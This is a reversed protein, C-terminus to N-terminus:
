QLSLTVTCETATDAQTSIDVRIWSGQVPDSLGSIDINDVYNSTTSMTLENGTIVSPAASISNKMYIDFEVPTTTEASDCLIYANTWQASEPVRVYKGTYTSTLNTFVFQFSKVIASNVFATTAISTDNDGATPTTATSAGLDWGTVSVNDDITPSSWTGGLEGGPSTGVVIENTLTGDATGVLYDVNTPAGGGTASITPNRPNTKDITINTGATIDSLLSDNNLDSTNTPLEADRAITSPIQSDTVAGGLDQLNHTHNGAAVQNASTGILATMVGNDIRYPAGNYWLWGYQNTLNGSPDVTNNGLNNWWNGNSASTRYTDFTAVTGTVDGDITMNAVGAGGNTISITTDSASNSVVDLQGATSSSIDWDGDTGFLASAADSYTKDATITQATGLLMDGGGTVDNMTAFVNGASPSNAGNVAAKEDATLEDGPYSVKANNTATDSEITDLDVAQTVSIYGVKTADASPYSNKATNASVASNGSVATDFDSITSATQTGTHNARSLLYADTQNATAGTAIGDLKTKDASTMVDGTNVGSTNGIVTKEADTVYNHDTDETLDGTTLVVVGTKGNVSDVPAGGGAVTIDIEHNANEVASIGSGIFNLKTVALDLSTGEDQVELASGGAHDDVYKKTAPHYDATPTYTSTNDLELVNSKLAYITLDPKNILDNYSKNWASYVPDTETYSTLYGALAHNGWSFANDWNTIKAATVGAADSASYVPDTETYSKIYGLGSIDGDTLHTDNDVYNTAHITGQNAQTWDVGSTAVCVVTGDANVTQIAQGPCDGSVRAQKTEVKDYVADKTPVTYNGNWSSGYAEHDSIRLHGHVWMDQFYDTEALAAAPTLVVVLVILFTKQM